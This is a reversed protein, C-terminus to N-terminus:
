CLILDREHLTREIKGVGDGRTADSHGVRLKREGVVFQLDIKCVWGGLSLRGVCAREM